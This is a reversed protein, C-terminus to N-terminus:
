HSNNESFHHIPSAAYFKDDGNAANASAGHSIQLDILSFYPTTLRHIRTLGEETYFWEM